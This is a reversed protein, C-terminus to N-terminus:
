VLRIAIGKSRELMAPWHRAMYERRALAYVPEDYVGLKAGYENKALTGLDFGIEENSGAM